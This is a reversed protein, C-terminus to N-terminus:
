MICIQCLYNRPHHMATEYDWQIADRQQVIFYILLINPVNSLGHVFQNLLDQETNIFIQAFYNSFERKSSKKKWEQVKAAIVVVIQILRVSTIYENNWKWLLSLIDQQIGHVYYEVEIYEM